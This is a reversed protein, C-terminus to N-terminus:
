WGCVNPQAQMKFHTRQVAPLDKADRRQETEDHKNGGELFLSCSLFPSYILQASTCCSYM